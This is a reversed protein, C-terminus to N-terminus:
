VVSHFETFILSNLTKIQYIMKLCVSTRPVIELLAIIQIIIALSSNKCQRRANEYQYEANRSIYVYGLHQDM